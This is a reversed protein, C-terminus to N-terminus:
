KENKRAESLAKEITEYDEIGVMELANVSYFFLNKESPKGSEDLPISIVPLQYTVVLKKTGDDSSVIKANKVRFKVNSLLETQEKYLKEKERLTKLENTVVIKSIEKVENTLETVQKQLQKKSIM